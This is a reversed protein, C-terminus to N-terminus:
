GRGFLGRLIPNRMLRTRLSPRRRRLNAKFDLIVKIQLAQRRVFPEDDQLALELAPRAAEGIRVITAWHRLENGSAVFDLLYERPLDGPRAGHQEQMELLATAADARVGRSPDQLLSILDQVVEATKLKGLSCAAGQRLDRDESGAMWRLLELAQPDGANGFERLLFLL